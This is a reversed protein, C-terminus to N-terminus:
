GMAGRAWAATVEAEIDQEIQRCLGAFELSTDDRPHALNVAYIQKIHAEPGATMVAVRHGLLVAERIDHTVYLITKGVESWIRVIERQMIKRTQADLAAFPEDMLLISPDVALARAIQVRQKMGGSLERPFKQEHGILGVAGILQRARERRQPPPMGQMRLGFEVNQQVTLWDFLPADVSQFVMGRDRGPARVPRGDAIIQGDTPEFFGAVLRLLTSKGCGSPGVLVFIEGRAIRLSIGRLVREERGRARFIMTLDQIDLASRNGAALSVM